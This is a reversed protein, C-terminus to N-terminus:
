DETDDDQDDYDEADNGYALKIMKGLQTIGMQAFPNTANDYAKSMANITELEIKAQKPTIEGNRVREFLDATAYYVGDQDGREQAEPLAETAGTYEEKLAAAYKLRFDLLSAPSMKSYDVNALAGDIQQLVDGLQRIRAAKTMGYATYLDNLEDQKRLAIQGALETEWASCTSKSIHLAAAIKAYSEGAARRMVFANKTATTKSM